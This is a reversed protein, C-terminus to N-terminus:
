GRCWANVGKNKLSKVVKLIYNEDYPLVKSFHNDQVNENLFKQLVYDSGEPIYGINFVLDEETVLGPVMTTRFEFKVGSVALIKISTKIKEVDCVIGAAKRYREETLATKIDMAVYDALGSEIISKLTEPYTGNTDIKIEYGRSRIKELFDIIDENFLPEGGCIVIGDLWEKRSNIYDLFKGEDINKKVSCLQFNHCFPCRLNCGSLFVVSSIKGPWDIMSVKQVGGIRNM